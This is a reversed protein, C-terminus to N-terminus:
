MKTRIRTYNCIKIHIIVNYRANYENKKKFTYIQTYYPTSFKSIEDDRMM